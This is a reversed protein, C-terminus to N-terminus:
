YVFHNLGVGRIITLICDPCGNTIDRLEDFTIEKDKWKVIELDM